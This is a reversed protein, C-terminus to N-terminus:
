RSRAPPQCVSCLQYRAAQCPTGQNRDLYTTLIQRLCTDTSALLRAMVERDTALWGGHNLTPNGSFMSSSGSLLTLCLGPQGDRSARGTAQAYDIASDGGEWHIVLRVAPYDIGASLATTGVLLRDQPSPDPHQWRALAEAREEETLRGHYVGCGLQEALATAQDIRNCYCLGRWHDSDQWWSRHTHGRLISQIQHAVQVHGPMRAPRNPLRGTDNSGEGTSTEADDPDADLREGRGQLYQRDIAIAMQRWSSANMHQDQSLHGQWARDLLRSLRTTKWPQTGDSSFLLVARGVGSPGTSWDVAQRAGRPGVVIEDEVSADGDEEEDDTEEGPAEVGITTGLQRTLFRVFPLVLVVLNAVLDAVAPALYRGIARQGSAWQLKHYVTLLLMMGDHVLVNRRQETNRYQVGLIKPGRAPLGATLHILVLLQEHFLIVQRLYEAM